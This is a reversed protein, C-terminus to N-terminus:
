RLDVGARALRVDRRSPSAPCDAGGVQRRKKGTELYSEVESRVEKIKCKYLVKKLVFIRFKREMIEPNGTKLFIIKMNKLLLIENVAQKRTKVEKVFFNIYCYAYQRFTKCNLFYQPGFLKKDKSEAKYLAASFLGAKENKLLNYLRSRLFTKGPYKKIEDTDYIFRFGRWNDLFVINFGSYQSLLQTIKKNASKLIIKNMKNM